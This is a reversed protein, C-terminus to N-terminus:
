CFVAYSISLLRTPESIHILSLRPVAYRRDAVNREREDPGIERQLAIERVGLFAGRVHLARAVVDSDVKPSRASGDRESVPPAFGFQQRREEGIRVQAIPELARLSADRRQLREGVFDVSQVVAMQLQRLRRDAAEGEMAADVARM